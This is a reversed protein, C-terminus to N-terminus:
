KRRRDVFEQVLKVRENKNRAAYIKQIQEERFIRLNRESTLSNILAYINFAMLVFDIFAWILWGKVPMVVCNYVAMGGMLIIMLISFVNIWRFDKILIAKSKQPSPLQTQNQEKLGNKINVKKVM